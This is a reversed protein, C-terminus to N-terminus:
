LRRLHFGGDVNIVEGTSFPLYGRAIALVAKAVDDPTGWRKLPTIGGAILDDYKKKVPETMPTLIIGPSVEYVNIGHESLRDAFLKTVMGIAAKSICYEGRSTSSTYASISSINVIKPEVVTGASVLAIMWRAIRQTLFLTGRLNVDMVRDFGEETMELLDLRKHPPIGANNVLLDIRGFETKLSSVIADRGDGRSIDARIYIHRAGTSDLPSLVRGAEVEDRTGNTAVDFSNRALELAVAAGIGSSSGTVLAVPRDGTEGDEM